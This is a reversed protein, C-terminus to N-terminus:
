QDEHTSHVHLNINEFSYASFTSVISRAEAQKNENIMRAKAKVNKEVTAPGSMCGGKCAMGEIIDANCRGVNLLLLAKKCDMAGDAYEAKVSIEQNHESIYNNVAASVGGGVAFNRGFISAQQEQTDEMSEPWIHKSVLMAALEEYTLVFDVETDMAEQKKAVCPGIFVVKQSPSHHKIYRAMAVMPSVMTSVHEAYVKPFHLKAMNVFAPCCSTTMKKNQEMNHLLEEAEYKAVADAGIAAEYIHSFGLAKISEKIQGYTAGDFQGQISPAVIAVVEDESQIAKIVSTIQSVDEIAGFPCAAQCAGCNICKDEDIKVIGFDDMSIADVSCSKKCPRSTMVIASYSCATACAGCEKCKDYDIEAYHTGMKIANFNCSTICSKAMCKRCNDTVRIKKITCGDCAAEMVRVVQSQPVDEKLLPDNGMALRTRERIVEREKYVCCRFNAKTNPILFKALIDPTNEGCENAFTRKSVERLVDFKFQRAENDFLNM